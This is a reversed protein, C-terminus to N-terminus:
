SKIRKKLAEAARFKPKKYADVIVEEGTQPHRTTYGSKTTTEFVGFNSIIVENYGALQESINEFISDIVPEISIITNGTDKAVLRALDHKGIRAM